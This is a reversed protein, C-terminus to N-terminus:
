QDVHTSLEMKRLCFTQEGAIVYGIMFFPCDERDCKAIVRDKNNRHLYYNRLQAIHFQQLARRFQYVDVFCMKLCLQEDASERQEDYWVRPEKKKARSKVGNPLVFALAEFQDDDDSLLQRYEDTDEASSPVFDPLPKSAEGCHSRTTPGATKAKKLDKEAEIICDSSDSDNDSDYFFDERESEESDVLSISVSNAPKKRKLDVIKQTLEDDSDVPIVGVNGAVASEQSKFPVGGGDVAYVVPVGIVSIPIQDQVPALNIGAGLGDERKVVTITVCKEMAYKNIMEEVAAMGDILAMGARGIGQEKVYYMRDNFGYGETKILEVLNLFTIDSEGLKRELNDKGDFHFRVDWIDDDM